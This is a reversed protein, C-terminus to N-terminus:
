VISDHNFSFSLIPKEVKIEKNNKKRNIRKKLLDKNDPTKEPLNITKIFEMKLCYYYM